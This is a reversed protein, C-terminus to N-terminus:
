AQKLRWYTYFSIPLVAYYAVSMATLTLWPFTFLMVATFGIFLMLPLVLDRRIHTLGKGSFTPLTSVMLLGVILTNGLIILPFEALDIIEAVQLYIPLMVLGGASPSPVGIFFKSKWAPRDAEEMDVNFRALRLACCVSYILIVAWGLRGTSQLAWLYVLLVPAIGFNVFDTLSDLQAGLPSEAKLLRALRGDFADLFGAIVICMVALEFRGELGQRVATLGLCLALLTVINPIIRRIPFKRSQLGEKVSQREAAKKDKSEAM